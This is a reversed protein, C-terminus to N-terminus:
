NREDKSIWALCSYLKIVEQFFMLCNFCFLCRRLLWPMYCPQWNFGFWKPWTLFGQVPFTRPRNVSAAASRARQEGATNNFIFDFRIVCGNLYLLLRLSHLLSSLLTFVCHWGDCTCLAHTAMHHIFGNLSLLHFFPRVFKSWKGPIPPEHMGIYWIIQLCHIVFHHQNSFTFYSKGPPMWLM